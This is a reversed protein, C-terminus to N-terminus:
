GVLIPKILALLFTMKVAPKVYFNMRNAQDTPNLEDKRGSDPIEGDNRSPTDGGVEGRWTTKQMVVRSFIEDQNNNTQYSTVPYVKVYFNSNLESDPLTNDSSSEDNDNKRIRWKERQIILKSYEKYSVDNGELHAKILQNPFSEDNKDSSIADRKEKNNRDNFIEDNTDKRVYIGNEDDTDKVGDTDNEGYNDKEGNTDKKGNTDNGDGTDKINSIDKETIIEYFVNNFDDNKEDSKKVETDIFESSKQELLEIHEDVQNNKSKVEEKVQNNKSKVEEEVQNNKSEVEEEIQNSKLKVWEEEKILSERLGIHGDDMKSTAYSDNKEDLSRKVDEPNRKSFDPAMNEERLTMTDDGRCCTSKCHIFVTLIVSVMVISAIVDPIYNYLIYDFLKMLASCFSSVLISDAFVSSFRKIKSEKEKKM